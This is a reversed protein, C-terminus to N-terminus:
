RATAPPVPPSQCHLLLGTSGLWQVTALCLYLRHWQYFGTEDLVERRSVDLLASMPLHVLVQGLLALAAVLWLVEPWRRVPGARRRTILELGAALLALGALGNLHLTVQQTIFGQRTASRLVHTGVSIVVTTYFTFGGWWLALLLFACRARLRALPKM